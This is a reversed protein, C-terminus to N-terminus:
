ALDTPRFEYKHGAVVYFYEMDCRSEACANDSRPKILPHTKETDGEQAKENEEDCCVDIEFTPAAQAAASPINRKETL